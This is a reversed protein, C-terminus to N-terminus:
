VLAAFSAVITKVLYTLFFIFVNAFKLLQGPSSLRHESDTNCDEPFACFDSNKPTELNKGTGERLPRWDAM